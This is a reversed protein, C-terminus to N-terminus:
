IYSYDFSSCLYRVCWVKYGLPIVYNLKSVLMIVAVTLLVRMCEHMCVCLCAYM